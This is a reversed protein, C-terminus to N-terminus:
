GSGHCRCFERKHCQRLCTGNPDLSSGAGKHNTLWGVPHPMPVGHCAACFKQRDHCRLCKTDSLKARKGHDRLWNGVRHDAPVSKRHCDSCQTPKHCKACKTSKYQAVIRHAVLWNGPHPMDLGHCNRCSQTSHCLWCSDSRRTAEKGHRKSWSMRHTAPKRTRHCAMCFARSHCTACQSPALQRGHSRPWFSSKHSPPLRNEHCYICSRNSHCTRCYSPRTKAQAGHKQKWGVPHPGLRPYEALSAALALMLCAVVLALSFFLRKL